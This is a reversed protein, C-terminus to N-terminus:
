KKKSYKGAAPPKYSRKVNEKGHMLPHPTFKKTSDGYRTGANLKAIFKGYKTNNKSPKVNIVRAKNRSSKVEMRAGTLAHTFSTKVKGTAARNRQGPRPGSGPGGM